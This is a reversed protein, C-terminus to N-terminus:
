QMIGKVSTFIVLFNKDFREKFSPVIPAGTSYVM